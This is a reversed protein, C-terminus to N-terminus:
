FVSIWDPQWILFAKEKAARLAGGRARHQTHVKTASYFLPSAPVQAQRQTTKRARYRGQAPRRVLLKRADDAARCNTQNGNQTDGCSVTLSVGRCGPLLTEAIKESLASGGIAGSGCQGALVRLCLVCSKEAAFGDARM